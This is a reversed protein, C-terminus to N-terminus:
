IEFFNSFELTRLVKEPDLTLHMFTRMFGDILSFDSYIIKFILILSKFLLVADSRIALDTISKAIVIFLLKWFTLIEFMMICLLPMNHFYISYISM